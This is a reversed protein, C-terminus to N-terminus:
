FLVLDFIIGNENNMLFHFSYFIFRIALNTNIIINIGDYQLM